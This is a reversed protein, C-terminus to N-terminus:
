QFGAIKSFAKLMQPCEFVRNRKGPTAQRIVGAAELEDVAVATRKFSRDIYDAAGKITFLPIGPLANIIQIAASDARVDIADLWQRKLDDVNGFFTAVEEATRTCCQAYYRIWACIVDSSPEAELLAATTESSGRREKGATIALALSLPFVVNGTILRRHTFALQVMTVSTKGMGREFPHVATLQAPALAAQVVAPVSDDNMFDALDDLLASIQSADPIPLESGFPRNRGGGVQKSNTRLVGNHSDRTTSALLHQNINRFSNASVSGRGNNAAAEFADILQLSETQSNDAATLKDFLFQRIGPQRGSHKADGYLEITKCADAFVKAQLPDDFAPEFALANREADSITQATATDFSLEFRYLSLSPRDSANKPRIVGAM